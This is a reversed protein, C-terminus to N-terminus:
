SADEEVDFIADSLQMALAVHEHIPEQGPPRDPWWMEVLGERVHNNYPQSSRRGIQTFIEMRVVEEPLREPLHIGRIRGARAKLFAIASTGRTPPIEPLCEIDGLYAAAHWAYANLGTAREFQDLIADGPTRAAVEGVYEGRFEVHAIGVDIRLARCAECARERLLADNWRCGPIAQGTEAFNPLLTISKDTVSLVVRRGSSNLVEVSCEPLGSYPELLLHGPYGPFVESQRRLASQGREYATALEEPADIFQVGESGGLANVKLVLPYGFARAGAELSDLDTVLRYDAVPLGHRRLAEKMALKDRALRPDPLRPLDFFEAIAYASDVTLESLPVAAAPRRGTRREYDQVAALAEGPDSVSGALVHDLLRGDGRFPDSTIDVIPWNPLHRRIGVLARGRLPLLAGLVLM